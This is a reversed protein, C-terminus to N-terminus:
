GNEMEHVFISSTSSYPCSAPLSYTKGRLYFGHMNEPLTAHDVCGRLWVHEGDLHKARWTRM